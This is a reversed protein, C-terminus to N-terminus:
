HGGPIDIDEIAADLIADLEADNLFDDDAAAEEEDASADPAEPSKESLDDIDFDPVLGEGEQQTISSGSLENLSDAVSQM